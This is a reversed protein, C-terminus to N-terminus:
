KTSSLDGYLYECDLTHLTKNKRVINRFLIEKHKSLGKYYQISICRHLFPGRDPSHIKIKDGLNVMYQRGRM